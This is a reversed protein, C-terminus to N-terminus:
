GLEDSPRCASTEGGFPRAGIMSWIGFSAQSLSNTYTDGAWVVYGVGLGMGVIMIPEILANITTLAADVRAEYFDAVKELLGGLNGTEEGAAIMRIAMQPFIHHKKLTVAIKSGQLIDERSEAIAKAVVSNGSSEQAM